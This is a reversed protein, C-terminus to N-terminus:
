SKLSKIEFQSGEGYDSRVHITGSLKKVTEKVIFLGLGSGKSRDSARYYMDFIRGLSHTEIGIGNDTVIISFSNEAVSASVWVSSEPKTADAYKIANGVLNHLIVKLRDPDSHVSLDHAVENVMKVHIAEPWFALEEFVDNVLRHLNVEEHKLPHHTNRSFDVLSSIVHELKKISREMYDHYVAIQNKDTEKRSINILGLVSKLPASLDHSASYVFRDLEAVVIDLEKITDELKATRLQVQEELQDNLKKLNAHAEELNKRHELILENQSTLEENQALIENDRFTIDDRQKKLTTNQRSILEVRSELEDNKSKIETTAAAVEQELAIRQRNLYRTRLAISLYIMLFIILLVVIKFLLTQWWAPQIRINLQLMEDMWQGVNNTAKIRLTYKGPPLATLTIKHDLGIDIWEDNFNELQYSYQITPTPEILLAAFGISFSNQNHRLEIQDTLTINRKLPSSAGIAVDQYNLKFETFAIPPHYTTLRIQEPQFVVLGKQNGFLLMGNKSYRLATNNFQNKPLGDSAFFNIIQHTRVDISSIGKNTSVWIKDTGTQELAAAVSNTALDGAVDYATTTGTEPDYRIIGLTNTSVWLIGKSDEMISPITLSGTLLGKEVVSYSGTVPDIMSLGGGDRAVWVRGRKDLHLDNVKNIEPSRTGEAQLYQEFSGDQVRYHLVGFGFTGLWLNDLSDTEIAMIEKVPLKQGRMAMIEIHQVAHTQANIKFLGDGWTGVWVNGHRDARISKVKESERDQYTLAIKQFLFESTTATAPTNTYNLGGGDTGVWIGGDADEELAFVNNHSLGSAQGSIAKISTFKQANQDYVNLGGFYTAAWMRNQQDAFLSKISNSALSENDYENHTLRVFPHSTFPDIQKEVLSMGNETGVWITGHADEKISYIQDSVLEGAGTGARHQIMKNQERDIIYLGDSWTGIWLRQKSDCHLAQVRLHVSDRFIPTFVGSTPNYHNVGAGNVAVLMGLKTEIIASAWHNAVEESTTFTHNTFQITHDVRDPIQFSSIGHGVVSIYLRGAKSEYITQVFDGILSASNGPEHQFRIFRDNERDYWCLGADFTGVWLNHKSDEFLYQIFNSSLSLSDSKHFYYNKFSYGDYRQLGEETGFWFFGQYDQLISLVNGSVLGDNTTIHRFKYSQAEALYSGPFSLLFLLWLKHFLRPTIM